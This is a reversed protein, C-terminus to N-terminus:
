PQDITSPNGDPFVFRFRTGTGAESHVDIRWQLRESIRAVISLGLGYGMSNEGKAHRKFLEPFREEPIGIGTDAIELCHRDLRITIVGERTYACANRLVNSVLVYALAREVPLTQRERVVVDISVPRGALSPRCDAVADDVIDSLACSPDADDRDERALLLMAELIQSMRATQRQITAIRIRVPEPIDPYEALVEAAGAIIAVPTRLEHSVDAAFYSERQIFEHIRLSFRDLERVLQGIEDHPYDTVSFGIQESPIKRQQAKLSVDGLLRVIPRVLKSALRYGVIFSLLTMIGTALLLLLALHSLNSKLYSRDYLLAFPRGDVDAVLISFDTDDITRIEIPDGSASPSRYRGLKDLPLFMGRLLSSNAPLAEPNVAVRHRFSELEVNLTRSIAREEINALLAFTTLSLSASVIFGLLVFPQVLKERLSDYPLM